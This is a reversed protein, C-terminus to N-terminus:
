VKLTYIYIYIYIHLQHLGGRNACNARGRGAPRKRALEAGTGGGVPQGGGVAHM